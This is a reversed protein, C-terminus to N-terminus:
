VFYITNADSGTSGVVISYGNWKDASGELRDAILKVGTTGQNRNGFHYETVPTNSDAADTDGNRFNFWVRQTNGSTPVNKFNIENNHQFRLYDATGGAANATEAFHPNAVYSIWGSSALKFTHVVGNNDSGGNGLDDSVYVWAFQVIDNSQVVIRNLPIEYQAASGTLPMGVILVLKKGANYADLADAFTTDNAFVLFVDANLAPLDMATKLTAATVVDSTTGNITKTIKKNTSDWAVMSVKGNWTSASEIHSDTITGSIDSNSVTDKFALAKLDSFWKSVLGFLTALKSGSAVATRSSAESFTVTVDKGDGTKDLKNSVDSCSFMYEDGNADVLRDITHTAM